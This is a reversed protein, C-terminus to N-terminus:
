VNVALNLPVYTKEACVGFLLTFVNTAIYELLPCHRVYLSSM